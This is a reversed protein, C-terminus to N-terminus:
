AKFTRFQIKIEGIQICDGNNLYVGETSVLAANKGRHLITKADSVSRVCPDSGNMFIECHFDRVGAKSLVLQNEEGSGIRITRDTNFVYKRSSYESLEILEVMISASFERKNNSINDEWSIEVPKEPGGRANKMQPNLLATTLAADRRKIQSIEEQKKRKKKWIFLQRLLIVLVIILVVILYIHTKLFAM